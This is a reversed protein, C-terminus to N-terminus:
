YWIDPMNRTPRCARCPRRGEALATSLPVEIVNVGCLTCGPRHYVETKYISVLVNIDSPQDSLDCCPCACLGVDLMTAKSALVLDSVCYQHHHYLGDSLDRKVFVLGKSLDPTLPYELMEAILSETDIDYGRARLEHLLENYRARRTEVLQKYKLDAEVLDREAQKLQSDYRAISSSHAARFTKYERRLSIYKSVTYVIASAGIVVALIEFLYHNEPETSTASASKVPLPSPSVTAKAPKPTPSHTPRPTPTANSSLNYYWPRSYSSSSSSSGSNVGTQDDFDYPCQGNSHQHAPYGHHYHYNGTSHDIHGGSSDTQGPHAYATTVCLLLLIGVVYLLRRM